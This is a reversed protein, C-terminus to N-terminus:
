QLGVVKVAVANEGLLGLVAGNRPLRVGAQDPGLLEVKVVDLCSAAVPPCAATHLSHCRATNLLTERQM